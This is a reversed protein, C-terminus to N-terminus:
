GLTAVGPSVLLSQSILADFTWSSNGSISVQADPAYVVGSVTSGISSNGAISLPSTDDRAQFLAIGAYPGESLPALTVAGANLSVASSSDTCSPDVSSCGVYFFVGGWDSGASAVTTYKGSTAWGKEFVYTGSPVNNTGNNSLTVAGEYIGPGPLSTMAGTYITCPAAPAAPNCGYPGPPPLFFNANDYPDSMPASLTSFTSPYINSATCGSCGGGAPLSITGSSCIWSGSGVCSANVSGTGGITLANAQASDSVLNGIVQLTGGGEVDITNQGTGLALVGPVSTTSPEGVLSIRPVGSLSYSYGDVETVRITVSTTPIGSVCAAGNEGCTVVPATTSSLSRAVPVNAIAAPPSAATCTFRELWWNSGVEGYYYSVNESPLTMDILDNTHAMSSAAACLNAGPTAITTASRVDLAFWASTTQADASESLMQTSSSTLKLSLISAGALSGVVVALIATAILLEILTFGEDDHRNQEARSFARALPNSSRPRLRTPATM